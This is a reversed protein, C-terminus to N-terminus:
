NTAEDIEEGIQEIPGDSATDLSIDGDSEIEIMSGAIFAVIIAAAAIGGTVIPKM